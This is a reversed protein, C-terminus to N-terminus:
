SVVDGATINPRNPMVAAMDNQRVWDGARMDSDEASAQDQFVSASIMVGGGADVWVYAVFGPLQSILPVFSEDVRRGAYHPDTAGGKDTLNSRLSRRSSLTGGWNKKLEGCAAYAARLLATPKQGGSCPVGPIVAQNREGLEKARRSIRRPRDDGVEGAGLVVSLPDDEPRVIRRM